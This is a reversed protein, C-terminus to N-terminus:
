SAMSHRRPTYPSFRVSRRRIPSEPSKVTSRPHKRRSMFDGIASQRTKKPTTHKAHAPKKLGYSSYFEELEGCSDSELSLRSTAGGALANLNVPSPLSNEADSEGEEEVSSLPSQADPRYLPPLVLTDLEKYVFRSSSTAALPVGHEFDFEWKERQKEALQAMLEDLFSDTAERASEVPQGFNLCRRARRGVPRPPPPHFAAPLGSTTATPPPLVDM